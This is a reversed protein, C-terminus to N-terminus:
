NEIYDFTTVSKLLDNTENVLNLHEHSKPYANVDDIDKFYAEHMVNAFIPNDENPLNDHSNKYINDKIILNCKKINILKSVFLDINNEDKLKYLSIHRIM